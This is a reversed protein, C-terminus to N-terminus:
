QEYAPLYFKFLSGQGPESEILLQSGHKKLAHSVIALGLGSGGHSTRQRASDVIYFRETLHNLHEKGIGVGNDQIAFLAFTKAGQKVKQWRIEIESLKPNHEIANYILNSVCENLLKPYGQVVLEDDLYLRIIHKKGKRIQLEDYISYIIDPMDVVELTESYLNDEIRALTLLQEVMSLLRNVQKQMSKYPKLDTKDHKVAKKQNELIEIYGQLVTLPVRLEHSINAFLRKRTNEYLVRESIDTFYILSFHKVSLPHIVYELHLEPSLELLGQRQKPDILAQKLIEQSILPFITPSNRSGKLNFYNKIKKNRWIVKGQEDIFCVAVPLEKIALMMKKLTRIYNPELVLWRYIFSHTMSIIFFAIFFSLTLSYTFYYLILMLFILIISLKFVLETKSWDSTLKFHRKKM